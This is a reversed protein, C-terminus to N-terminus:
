KYIPDLEARVVPKKSLVNLESIMTMDEVVLANLTIDKDVCSEFLCGVGPLCLPPASACEKTISKFTEPINAIDYNLVTFEIEESAYLQEPTITIYTSPTNLELTGTVYSDAEIANIDFCKDEEWGLINYRTCRSDTPIEVLDEYILTASMSYIGPVLIVSSVENGEISFSTSFDESIVIPNIDSIRDLTVVVREKDILDKRGNTLYYNHVSSLSHNATLNFIQTKDESGFLQDESNMFCVEEGLECSIDKYPIVALSFPSFTYSCISPQVCKSVDKKKVSVSVEKFKHMEIVEESYDAIAYGIIGSKEKYDYTDVPYFNTLYDQKIVEVVGGYVAPYNTDLEGRSDTLGMVCSDQEPVTFGIKVLEVPEKSFSDVVVTKILGSNRKNEDCLMTEPSNIIPTPLEENEEAPLNNLINAEMAFVFNYGEGGFARPDNLSVMVPFSIDYTNYYQQMSFSFPILPLPSKVFIDNPRIVEENENIDFYTEWGFYDFNIDLDEGGTLPVVMNDYSRQYIGSLDTVPYEYQYFNNSNLYRLMPVNASLSQEFKKKVDNVNWSIYSFDEYTTATTPPIKEMDTHGYIQLMEVAMNEIYSFNKEAGAIDSAVEYFHKLRLPVKVYFKEMTHEAGAKSASIPMELLFNVTEDGVTVKVERTGDASSVKFGQSEFAQYNNLCSTIREEVYRSLQAEISFQPNEDYYLAPKLSSFQVKNASSPLVNYHWYPVKLPELNIGDSETPNSASYEGALDPYIYGGQEGLIILGKKASQFICNETFTSITQFTLPVEALVPDGSADLADKTFTQTFYMIGAFAFLIVIGIIIFVTVQGRKGSIFSISSDSIVVGSKKVM